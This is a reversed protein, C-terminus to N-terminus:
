LAVVAMPMTKSNNHRTYGNSPLPDTCMGLVIHPLLLHKRNGWITKPTAIYCYTGLFCNITTLLQSLETSSANVQSYSDLIQYLEPSPLGLHNLLFPLSPILRRFSSKM